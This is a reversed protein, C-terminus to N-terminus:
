LNTEGIRRSSSILSKAMQLCQLPVIQIQRLDLLYGSNQFSSSCTETGHYKLFSGCKKYILRSCAM